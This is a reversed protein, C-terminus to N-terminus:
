SAPKELGKSVASIRKHADNLVLQTRVSLRRQLFLDDHIQRLRKELGAEAAQAPQQRRVLCFLAACAAGLTFPVLSCKM